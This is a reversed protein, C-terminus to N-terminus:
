APPFASGLEGVERQRFATNIELRELIQSVQLQASPIPHTAMFSQVDESVAPETLFVLGDLMRSVTNDPFKALAADWNAKLWEWALSGVWRNALAGGVVFPANQTRMESLALGLTRELLEPQRFRPLAFLYRVEEQPTRAAAARQRFAEWEAAGGTWAVINVIAGLLDAVVASREQLYAAHLEAAQRRAADDAGITGLADLLSARLTGTRESEGAQPVWGLRTFVPGCLDRVFAAITGHDADLAIRHLSNLPGLAANWVSVDSEEIEALRSALRLFDAIPTSGALVTAWTDNMLNFREIPGLAEIDAVVQDLLLSAYRTRFFGWGGDNVIVADLPETLELVTQRDIMLERRHRWQGGLRERFLVPVHWQVTKDEDDPRYRFRRQTLVIRGDDLDAEVAVEPHGGQFIWTDMLARVPEGSTTELADWLDTTETNAHSHAALYHRIGDRFREEGLYMELMRLVAGGKQYTLLDFMGEADDPSVVAFEVPRTSALGDVGQAAARATSFSVWCQWDPRFADVCNVEMFTAFAENLWIGNWWRMTVLDGFWMHAIEHSVVLAIRELEERSSADRDALLATERFTVCGLNEMAGFAFDPLAVLDLKDGPYPLGFYESLYRLAHAGVELAFDALHTRGPPCAVRLPVGDVDVPQTLELPGVVWAVLYTSMKMTPAFTVWRHGNDTPREGAPTTNSLATLGAPVLLELQFTAKADPEDWCPFARRADTAEFQTTAIVRTTGVSDVFTSRYFGRLKDNLVGSHSITLMASGMAAPRPLTITARELDPDLTVSGVLAQGSADVLVASHLKLEAANCVIETLPETLDLSVVTTGEFTAADLDPAIALQYHRPRVTKPLRYRPDDTL